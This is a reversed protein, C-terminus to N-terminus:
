NGFLKKLLKKGKKEIKKVDKDSVDALGLDHLAQYAAQPNDLIGDMDPYIKPANWPGKVVVKVPLSSTQTDGTVLQPDFKFDLARRLMDVEGEGTIVALPTELHVDTSKAIGDEVVFTASASNFTSLDKPSEGWGKLIASGVKSIRDMIDLGIFQGNSVAISFNGKLSSMMEQQNHGAASLSTKLTTIGDLWDLGALQSFFKAGNFDHGDFDVQLTPVDLAGNLMVKANAKGGYLSGNQFAAELVNDKLTSSIDVPGWEAEKWRVLFASLTLTADVGKLGGVELSSTNWSPENASKEPATGLYTDLNLLNTSLTASVRPIKKALDITLDGNAAMGDMGFTAKKLNVVSGLSDLAGSLTVNKLGAKGGIENGLWKSLIRLDPSAAELTGVLNVSDQTGLRGDFNLTLAPAKIAIDAPSGDEAVRGMSKLHAEITAFQSNIAATGSIDLESDDGVRVIGTANGMSYAQGNREDLFNASGNEILLNLPEKAKGTKDSKESSGGAEDAIWNVRGAADILFNFRANNLTMERIKIERRFLDGFAIPLDAHGAKAFAGGMGNPNSISVDDLRVSLKPFFTLSTGGNVALTRGTKRMVYDQLQSTVFSPHTFGWVAAAFLGLFVVAGVWVFQKKM